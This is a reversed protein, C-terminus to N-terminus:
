DRGNTYRGVCRDSLECFFREEVCASIQCDRLTLERQDVIIGGLNCRRGWLRVTVAEARCIYLLIITTMVKNFLTEGGSDWCEGTGPTLGPEPSAIFNKTAGPYCPTIPVNVCARECGRRGATTLSMFNRSSTANTQRPAPLGGNGKAQYTRKVLVFQM